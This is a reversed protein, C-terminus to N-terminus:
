RASLVDAETTGPHGAATRRAIAAAGLHVVVFAGVAVVSALLLRASVALAFTAAAAVLHVAGAAMALGAHAARGHTEVLLARPGAPSLLVLGRAFLVAALAVTGILGQGDSGLVGADSLIWSTTMVAFLPYVTLAFWAQAVPDPAPGSWGHGIGLVFAGLLLGSVAVATWVTVPATGPRGPGAALWMGAAAAVGWMGLGGALVLQRAHRIDADTPREM